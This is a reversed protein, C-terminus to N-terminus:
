GSSFFLPRPAMKPTPGLQLSVVNPIRVPFGVMQDWWSFVAPRVQPSAGDYIGKSGMPFGLMDIGSPIVM